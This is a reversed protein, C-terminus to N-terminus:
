VVKATRTWETGHREKEHIAAGHMCAYHAVLQFECLFLFLLLIESARHIGSGTMGFFGFFM